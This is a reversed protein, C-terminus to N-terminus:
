DIVAFKDTSVLQGKSNTYVFLGDSDIRGEQIWRGVKAKVGTQAPSEAKEAKAPKDAKPKTAKPKAAVAYKAWGLEALLVEPKGKMGNVLTIDKGPETRFARILVGKLRADHGPAFRRATETGCGCLCKNKQKPAKEAKPKTETNTAM